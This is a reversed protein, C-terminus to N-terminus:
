NTLLKFDKCAAVFDFPEPEKATSEQPQEPTAKRGRSPTISNSGFLVTSVEKYIKAEYVPFFYGLEDAVEKNIIFPYVKQWEAFADKNDPDNAAFAIKVYQMRPSHQVPKNDRYAKFADLNTRDTMEITDVLAETFGEAEYGLERWSFTKIDFSVEDPYSVISKMSTDHDVLHFVKGSQEVASKNWIGPMHVDEHSDLFYITNIVNQVKDGIQLKRTEGIDSKISADKMSLVADCPDAEKITAKKLAIIEDKREWLETLMAKKDTFHKDLHKCYIM